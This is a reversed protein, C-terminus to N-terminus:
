QNNMNGKLEISVITKNPEMRELVYAFLWTKFILEGTYGTNLPHLMIHSIAWVHLAFEEQSSKRNLLM